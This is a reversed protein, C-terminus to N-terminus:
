VKQKALRYVGFYSVIAMVGSVLTEVRVFSLMSPTFIALLARLLFFTGLTTLGSFGVRGSSYWTFDKYHRDLYLYFVVLFACAVGAVFSSLSSTTVADEFFLLMAWPLLSFTAAEIVEYPRLRFRLIGALLGLSLGFFTLWFWVKASILSSIILGVAVGILMFFATSFILSPFYDEKLKKWFLFLFVFIAILNFIIETLM